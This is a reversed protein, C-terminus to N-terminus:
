EKIINQGHHPSFANAELFSILYEISEKYECLMSFTDKQMKIRTNGDQIILWIENNKRELKIVGFPSVDCKITHKETDWSLSLMDNRNLEAQAMTLHFCEVFHRAAELAEAKIKYYPFIRKLIHEHLFLIATLILM